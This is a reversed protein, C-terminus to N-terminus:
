SKGDQVTPPGDEIYIQVAEAFDEIQVQGIDPDDFLWGGESLVATIAEILTVKREDLFGVEILAQLLDDKKVWIVGHLGGLPGIISLSLANREVAIIELRSRKQGQAITVVKGEHETHVTM